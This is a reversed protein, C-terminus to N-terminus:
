IGQQNKCAFKKGSFQKRLFAYFRPIVVAAAKADAAMDPQVKKREPKKRPQEVFFEGQM